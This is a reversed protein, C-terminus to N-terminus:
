IMILNFDIDGILDLRLLYSRGLYQGCAFESIFWSPKVPKRVYKWHVQHLWEFESVHEVDIFIKKGWEASCLNM